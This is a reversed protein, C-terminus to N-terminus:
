RGLDDGPVVRPMHRRARVKVLRQDPHEARTLPDQELWPTHAILHYLPDHPHPPPASPAQLKATPM